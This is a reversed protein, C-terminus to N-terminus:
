FHVRHASQQPLCRSEKEIVFTSSAMKTRVFGRHTTLGVTAAAKQGLHAWMYEGGTTFM